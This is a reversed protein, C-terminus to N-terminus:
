AHGAQESILTDPSHIFSLKGLVFNLSGEDYTISVVIDATLDIEIKILAELQAVMGCTSELTTNASQSAFIGTAVIVSPFSAPLEGTYDIIASMLGDIDVTESLSVVLPKPSGTYFVRINAVQMSIIITIVISIIIITIIHWMPVYVGVTLWHPPTM